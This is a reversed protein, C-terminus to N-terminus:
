YGNRKPNQMNALPFEVICRTGACDSEMKFVGNIQNALARVLNLGMGESRSFDAAAPLGVGDDRVELLAGSATKKLVIAITGSRGGPFAYKGANTVLETLILGLPAAEKVPMTFNEMESSLSINGSCGVLPTAIRACYEGM